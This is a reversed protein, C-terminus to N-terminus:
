AACRRRKMVLGAGALGTLMIGLLYFLDTGPGGTNPLAAGRVNTVTILALNSGDAVEFKVIGEIDTGSLVGNTIMFDIEKQKIVYGDHTNDEILKYEGDPM